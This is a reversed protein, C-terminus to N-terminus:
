WAKATSTEHHTGLIGPALRILGVFLFMILVMTFGYITPVLGIDTRGLFQPAVALATALIANQIGVEVTITIVQQPGLKILRAVLFGLAMTVCNLLMAPPGADVLLPILNARERAIIAVVAFGLFLLSLTKVAGALRATLEPVQANVMMGISVPIVTILAIHLMTDGVPLTLVKGQGEGLINILALNLLLPVTFVALLSSIATLTVSLALDGRALLTFLNSVAGGPTLAILMVGVAFVPQISFTKVLLWAVIPLMVIQCFLGILVARPLRFLRTFDNVVLGTGMGFMIVALSGPIILGILDAM